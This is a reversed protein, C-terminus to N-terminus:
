MPNIIKNGAKGLLIKTHISGGIKRDYFYDSLLPFKQLLFQDTPTSLEEDLIRQADDKNVAFSEVFDVGFNKVMLGLSPGSVEFYSRSFDDKMIRVLESKGQETGDTGVAIRKRGGKDKYLAVCLVKNSRVVMKWFPIMSIMEDKSNFGSGHIGGIKSYSTQIMDWVADVYKLKEETNFANKYTEFLDKLKM